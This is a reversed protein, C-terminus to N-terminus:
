YDHTTNVIACVDPVSHAMSCVCLWCLPSSGIFVIGRKIQGTQWAMIRTTVASDVVLSRFICKLHRAHLCSSRSCTTCIGTGSAGDALHCLVLGIPRTAVEKGWIVTTACYRFIPGILVYTGITASLSLTIWWSACEAKQHQAAVNVDVSRTKSSTTAYGSGIGLNMFHRYPLNRHGVRFGGLCM